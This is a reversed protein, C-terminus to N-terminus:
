EQYKVQNRGGNKAKYLLEDTTKYLETDDGMLSAKKCVLGASITLFPSTKSNKHEIKLAEVTHIFKKVYKIANEKSTSKFLVGFEEGGLRFLYDDSRNLLDQVAKTVSQLAYDGEQHGYTDNYQKFYDIDFITFCVLDNNRKASEIYKNITENFYHRNFVGTLADVIAIEEVKKLNTIDHQISTYGIKIGEEDYTPYIRLHVWYENGEKNKNKLEGTWIKNDIITEWLDKYIEIAFDSSKILNHKKGILEDKKYASITCFAKSVYTIVGNLDTNTTIVNEDIIELYESIKKQSYIEKTIDKTAILIRNQDPMLALSMDLIINKGSKSIIKKRFHEVSTNEIVEKIVKKTSNIDEDFTIDFINKEKLETLTYGVIREYSNNAYLFNANFDLIAIGDLTTSLITELEAKKKLDYQMKENLKNEISELRIVKNIMEELLNLDIPKLIYGDAHIQIAEQLYEIDTFATIFIIHADKNMSFIEKSLSIGDMKPMKIDTIIIKPQYKKFLELGEVGNSALYLKNCFIELFESLEEQIVKEDEVYLISDIKEFKDM